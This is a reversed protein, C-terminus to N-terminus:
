QVTQKLYVYDQAHALIRFKECFYQSNLLQLTKKKTQKKTIYLSFLSKLELFQM